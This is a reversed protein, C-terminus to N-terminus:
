LYDVNVQFLPPGLRPRTANQGLSQENCVTFFLGMKRVDLNEFGHIKTHQPIPSPLLGLFGASM